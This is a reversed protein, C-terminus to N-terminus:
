WIEFLAEGGVREKRAQTDTLIGKPTSLILIGKGYRVPFVEDASKYIRRGPKSVRKAVTIKPAGDTKYQLEVHITKRIKKGSKDVNKIFGTEKLVEAIAMKVKSFPISVSEHNVAGANKLRIIFDGIPDGVM